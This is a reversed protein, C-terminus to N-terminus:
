TAFRATLGCDAHLVTGTMAAAMPSLLFVICAAIEEPEAIRGLPHSTVVQREAEEPDPQRELWEQVLHTRVFGPAIANVRLGQGGYDLALSRTLGEVAAKAAAYPFMGASTVTAHISSVNVIAAGDSELLHPLAERVLLWSAKLDVDFTADWEDMTMTAADYYANIGANNVLGDVGGLAAASRAVADTVHEPRTVDCREFVATGGARRLERALSRGDDLVDLIAVSGGQAVVAQAVARGIGRAGGTVLVRRGDLLAGDGLQARVSTGPTGDMM